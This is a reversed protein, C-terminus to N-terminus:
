RSPPPPPGGPLAGGPTEGAAKEREARRRRVEQAVADLRRQEDAPSPTVVAAAPSAVPGAGGAGASNVKATHLSLKLIRGQYAVTVSDSGPDAAKVVFDHGPENLGVWVDRKKATDYICYASGEPGEMM